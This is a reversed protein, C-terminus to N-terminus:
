IPNIKGKEASQIMEQFQKMIPTLAKAAMRNNWLCYLKLMSFYM